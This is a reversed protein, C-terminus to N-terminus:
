KGQSIRTMGSALEAIQEEDLTELFENFAQAFIQKLVKRTRRFEGDTPTDARLSDLTGIANLTGILRERANPMFPQTQRDSNLEFESGTM